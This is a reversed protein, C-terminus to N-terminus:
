VIEDDDAAPRAAIHGGDACRLQALLDGHDLAVVQAAHTQVPAADRGLRQEAVGLEGADQGAFGLLEAEAEVVQLQVVGDGLLAAALDGVPQHFADAEQELLVVDRVNLARCCQDAGLLHLDLWGALHEIGLIDDDGGASPRARQGAHRDVPLLDDGVPLRQLQRDRGLPQHDDARAGDAHFEGVHEAGVARFDGHDLHQRVHQRQFIVFGRGLDRLANLFCPM